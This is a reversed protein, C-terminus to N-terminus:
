VSAVTGDTHCGIGPWSCPSSALPDWGLQAAWSAQSLISSQSPRQCAARVILLSLTLVWARDAVPRRGYVPLPMDPYRKHLSAPCYVCACKSALAPLDVIASMASFPACRATLPM